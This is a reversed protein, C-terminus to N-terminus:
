GKFMGKLAYWLFALIGIPILIRALSDLIGVQIVDATHPSFISIIVVIAVVTILLRQPTKFFFGIWAKKNIVSNTQNANAL